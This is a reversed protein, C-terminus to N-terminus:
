LFVQGPGFFYSDVSDLRAQVWHFPFGIWKDAELKQVSQHIKDLVEKLGVQSISGSRGSSIALEKLVKVQELADKLAGVRTSLPPEQQTAKSSDWDLKKDTRANVKALAKIANKVESDKWKGAESSLVREFTVIFPKLKLVEAQWKTTQTDKTYGSPVQMPKGQDTSTFDDALFSVCKTWTEQSVLELGTKADVKSNPCPQVEFSAAPPSIPARTAASSQRPSAGARSPAANKRLKIPQKETELVALPEPERKKGRGRKSEVPAHPMMMPTMPSPILGPTAPAGILGDPLLPSMPQFSQKGAGADIVAAPQSDGEEQEEDMAQRYRLEEDEDIEEDANENKKDPNWPDEQENAAEDKGEAGEPNM